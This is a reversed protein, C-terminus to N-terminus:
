RYGGDRPPRYKKKDILALAVITTCIILIIQVSESM